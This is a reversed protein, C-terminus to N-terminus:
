PTPGSFTVSRNGVADEIVTCRRGDTHRWTRVSWPVTIKAGSVGGSHGGGMACDFTWGPKEVEDPQWTASTVRYGM